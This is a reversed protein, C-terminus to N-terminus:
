KKINQILYAYEKEFKEAIKKESYEKSKKIANKKLTILLLPDRKLNIIAEKMDKLSGNIIIGNFKDVMEPLGGRKTAIVAKGLSLAEQVTRGLPENWEPCAILVDQRNLESLVNQNDLYGLYKVRKDKLCLSQVQCKYNGEGIITFKIDKDQILNIIKLFMDIGKYKELKGVFIVNLGKNKQNINAPNDIKAINYITTITKKINLKKIKEEVFHSNCIIEDAHNLSRRAKKTRFILYVAFLPALFPNCENCFILEKTIGFYKRREINKEKKSDFLTGKYDFPWYDRMSVVIPCKVNSVSMTSIMHQSHVIDINYKKVLSAIEKKIKFNFFEKEIRSKSLNIIKFDEYPIDERCIKVIIINHGRKKLAKALYYTSWGSGGAHPPFSETVMLIRM